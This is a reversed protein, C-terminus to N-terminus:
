TWLVKLKYWIVIKEKMRYNKEGNEQQKSILKM